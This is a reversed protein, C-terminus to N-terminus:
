RFDPMLHSKSFIKLKHRFRGRLHNIVQFHNPEAVLLMALQASSFLLLRQRHSRM